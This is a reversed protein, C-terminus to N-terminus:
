LLRNEQLLLLLLKIGHEQTSILKITCSVKVLVNIQFIQSGLKHTFGHFEKATNSFKFKEFNDQM